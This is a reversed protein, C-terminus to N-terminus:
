IIKTVNIISSEMRSFEANPWNCQMRGELILWALQNKLSLGLVTTLWEWLIDSFLLSRFLDGYLFLTKICYIDVFRLVFCLVVSVHSSLIGGLVELEGLASRLPSGPPSCCLSCM